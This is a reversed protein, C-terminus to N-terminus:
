KLPVMSSKRIKLWERDASWILAKYSFLVSRRDESSVEIFSLQDKQTVGFSPVSSPASTHESFRVIISAADLLAGFVVETM